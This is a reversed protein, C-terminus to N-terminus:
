MKIQLYPHIGLADILIYLQGHHADNIIREFVRWLMGFSWSTEGKNTNYEPEALFYMIFDPIQDLLQTLVNKLIAHATRLREDKDDCFFYAMYLQNTKEHTLEKTLFSSLVSKGCGPDGSIWLIAPGDKEAWERYHQNGLIWTCTNEHRRLWLSERYSEYDSPKL